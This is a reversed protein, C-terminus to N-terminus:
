ESNCACPEKITTRQVLLRHATPAGRGKRLPRRVRPLAARDRISNCIRDPIM